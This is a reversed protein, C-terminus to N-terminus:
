SCELCNAIVDSGPWWMVPALPDTFDIRGTYQINPDNAPITEVGYAWLSFTLILAVCLAVRKM